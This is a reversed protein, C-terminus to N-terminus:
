RTHAGMKHAGMEEPTWWRGGSPSPPDRHAVKVPLLIRGMPTGLHGGLDDWGLVPMALIQDLVADCRAELALQARHAKPPLAIM